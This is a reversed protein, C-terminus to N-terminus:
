FEKQRNTEDIEFTDLFKEGKTLLQFAMYTSLTSKGAGSQGVIILSEGVGLVDTIRWKYEINLNGADELSLLCVKDKPINDGIDPSYIILSNNGSEDQTQNVSNSSM